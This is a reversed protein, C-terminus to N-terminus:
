MLAFSGPNQNTRLAFLSGFVAACVVLLSILVSGYDGFTSPLPFSWLWIIWILSLLIAARDFVPFFAGDKIIGQQIFWSILFSFFQLGLLIGLGALLRSSIINKSIKNAAFSTYLTGMLTFVIGLVYVFNGPPNALFTVLDGFIQM